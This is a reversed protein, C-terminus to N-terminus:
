IIENEYKKLIDPIIKTHLSDFLTFTIMKKGFSLIKNDSILGFSSNVNKFNSKGLILICIGADNDILKSDLINKIKDIFVKKNEELENETFKNITFTHKEKIIEKEFEM